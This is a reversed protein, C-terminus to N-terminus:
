GNTQPAMSSRIQDVALTGIVGSLRGSSRAASFPMMAAIACSAAVPWASIARSFNWSARERPGLKATGRLLQRAVGLLELQAKLRQLGVLRLAERSCRQGDGCGDLGRGLRLLRRPARQRFMRGSLIQPMGCWAGAGTAAARQALDAVRHGLGEIVHRAPEFYDPVNAFFQRAPGAVSHNCRRRWVM